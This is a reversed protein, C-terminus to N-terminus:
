KSPEAQPLLQGPAGTEPIKKIFYDVSSDPVAVPMNWNNVGFSLIPMNDFDSKQIRGQAFLDIKDVPEPLKQLMSIDATFAPSIKFIHTSKQVPFENFKIKPLPKISFDQALGIISFLLFFSILLTKM